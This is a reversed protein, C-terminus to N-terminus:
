MGTHRAKKLLQNVERRNIVMYKLYDGIIFCESEDCITDLLTQTKKASFDFCKKFIYTIRPVYAGRPCKDHYVLINDCGVVTNIIKQQVPDFRPLRFVKKRTHKKKNKSLRSETTQMGISRYRSSAGCRENDSKKIDLAKPSTAHQQTEGDCTKNSQTNSKSNTKKSQTKSNSHTKNSPIVSEADSETSTENFHLITKDDSESESYSTSESDISDSEETAENDTKNTELKDNHINLKFVKRQIQNM